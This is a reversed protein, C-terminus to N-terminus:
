VLRRGFGTEGDHARGLRLSFEFAGGHFFGNGFDLRGDAVLFQCPHEAITKGVREVGRHIEFHDIAPGVCIDDGAVNVRHPLAVAGRLNIRIQREHGLIRPELM